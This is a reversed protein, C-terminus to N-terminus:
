DSGLFYGDNCVACLAGNGSKAQLCNTVTAVLCSGGSYYYGTLCASCVNAACIACNVTSCALCNVGSLYYGRICATCTCVSSM